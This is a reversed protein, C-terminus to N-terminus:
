CKVLSSSIPKIDEETDPCTDHIIQRLHELIPKAFDASKAIYEDVKKNFQTM